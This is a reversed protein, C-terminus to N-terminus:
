GRLVTQRDGRADRGTGGPAPAGRGTAQRPRAAGTPSRIDKRPLAIDYTSNDMVFKIVGFSKGVMNVKGKKKLTQIIKEASTHTIILDVMGSPKKRDLLKDRIYGGVAYINEGFQKVFFDKHRFDAQLSKM